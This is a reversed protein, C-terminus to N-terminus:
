PRHEEELADCVMLGFTMGAIAVLLGVSLSTALDLHLWYAMLVWCSVFGVTVSLFRVGERRFRQNVQYTEACGECFKAKPSRTFGCYECIVTDPCDSNYGYSGVGSVDRSLSDAKCVRTSLTGKPPEGKSSVGTSHAKLRNKAALSDQSSLAQTNM